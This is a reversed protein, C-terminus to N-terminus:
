PSRDTGVPVIDDVILGLGSFPDRAKIVLLNEVRDGVCNSAAQHQRISLLRQIVCLMRRSGTRPVAPLTINMPHGAAPRRTIRLPYLSMPASEAAPVSVRSGIGRRRILFQPPGSPVKAPSQLHRCPRVPSGPM